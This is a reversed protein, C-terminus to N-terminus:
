VWWAHSARAFLVLSFSLYMELIRLSKGSLIETIQFILFLSIATQFGLLTMQLSLLIKLISQDKDAKKNNSGTRCRGSVYPLWSLILNAGLNKVSKKGQPILESFRVPFFLHLSVVEDKGMHGM